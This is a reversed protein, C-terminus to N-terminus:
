IISYCVETSFTIHHIFEQFYQARLEGGHVAGLSLHWNEMEATKLMSDKNIGSPSKAQELSFCLPVRSLIFSYRKRIESNVSCLQVNCLEAIATFIDAHLCEFTSLADDCNAVRISIDDNYDAAIENMRKVIYVFHQNHYLQEAFQSTQEIIKGLWNTMVKLQQLSPQNTQKMMNELFELILKFHNSVPSKTPSTNSQWSSSPQEQSKDIFLSSSSIFNNNKICHASILRLVAYQVVEYQKWKAEWVELNILIELISPSLSYMVIISNQMTALKSLAVLNFNLSYQAKSISIETYEPERDRLPVTSIWTSSNLEPIERLSSGVDAVIHMFATQLIPVSKLALIEHYLRVLGNKVRKDDNFRVSNAISGNVDLLKSILEVNLDARFEDIFKLLLSFFSALQDGSYDSLKENQIEIIEQVDHMHLEVDHCRCAIILLIFENVSTVLEEDKSEKLSSKAFSLVKQCTANLFESTILSVFTEPSQMVCKVVTNYVGSPSFSTSLKRILCLTHCYKGIFSGFERYVKQEGSSESLKELCSDVDESLSRLLNKSFDSENLWCKRFCQLAVSCHHKVERSQQSELHWGIIIDVINEFHPKFHRTYNQAIVVLVQTIAIFSEANDEKELFDKSCHTLSSIFQKTM